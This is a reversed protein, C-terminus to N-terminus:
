ICCSASSPRDTRGPELGSISSRVLLDTNHGGGGGEGNHEQGPQLLQQYYLAGLQHELLTLVVQEVGTAPYLQGGVM